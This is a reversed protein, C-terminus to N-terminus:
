PNNEEPFLDQWSAWHEKEIASRLQQLSDM